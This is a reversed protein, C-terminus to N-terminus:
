QLFMPVTGFMPNDHAAGAFHGDSILDACHVFVLGHVDWDSRHVAQGILSFDWKFQDLDLGTTIEALVIDLPKFVDILTALWDSKCRAGRPM